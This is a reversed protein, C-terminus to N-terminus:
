RPAWAHADARNIGFSSIPGSSLQTSPTPSVKGARELKSMIEKAPKFFKENGLDVVDDFQTYFNNVWDSAHYNAWVSKMEDRKKEWDKQKIAVEPRVLFPPVTM